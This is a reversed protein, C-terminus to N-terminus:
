GDTGRAIPLDDRAGWETWSGDYIASPIGLMDLALTLTAANVGSGCSTVVPADLDVGAAVFAERLAVADKLAGAEILDASPVSLSGPVRGSKVWARPEPAEGLFRARPRADVLQFTRTALNARIEDLNRVPAPHPDVHFVRPPRLVPRDDVPRGEAVWKPLGGELIVVDRAGMVKFTWWVRPASALGVADYVVIKQKEDIGLAGAAAAFHKPSPLMHPLPISTDAVEDIDFFVAGPIHARRYEARADRTGPLHWSGDVIVVAPDDLHAALWDTSVFWRSRDVSM